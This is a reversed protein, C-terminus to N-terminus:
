IIAAILTTDNWKVDLVCVVKDGKYNVTYLVNDTDMTFPAFEQPKEIIKSFFKDEKYDNVVQNTFNGSGITFVANMNQGTGGLIEDVTPGEVM